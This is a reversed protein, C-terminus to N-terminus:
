FFSMSEKSPPHKHFLFKIYALMTAINDGHNPIRTNWNLAASFFHVLDCGASCFSGAFLMDGNILHVAVGNMDCNPSHLMGHVPLVIDFPDTQLGLMTNLIGMQLWFVLWTRFEGNALPIFNPCHISKTILVIKPPILGHRHDIFFYGIKAGVCEVLVIEFENGLLINKPFPTYKEEIGGIKGKNAGCFQLVYRVLILLELGNATLNVGHGCVGVKDVLRPMICGIPDLLDVVGHQCIGGMAKGFIKLHQDLRVAKSLAAGKDDIRLALDNAIFYSGAIHASIRPFQQSLDLCALKDM